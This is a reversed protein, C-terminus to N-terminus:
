TWVWVWVRLDGNHDCRCTYKYWMWDVNMYRRCLTGFGLTKTNKLYYRHWHTVFYVEGFARSPKRTTRTTRNAHRLAALPAIMTGTRITPAASRAATPMLTSPQYRRCQRWFALTMLLMMM